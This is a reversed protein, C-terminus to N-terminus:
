KACRVRFIVSGSVRMRSQLVLRAGAAPPTAGADRLDTLADPRCVRPGHNIAGGHTDPPPHRAASSIFNRRAARRIEMPPPFARRDTFRLRRAASEGLRGAPSQRGPSRDSISSGARCANRRNERTKRAVAAPPPYNVRPNPMLAGSSCIRPALRM